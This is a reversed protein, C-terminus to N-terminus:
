SPQHALIERVLRLLKDVDFPRLLVHIGQDLLMAPEIHRMSSSGLIIPIKSTERKLRVLQLFNLVDREGGPPCDIMLLDPMVSVVDDPSRTARCEVDYGEGQLVETLAAIIDPDDNLCLIKKKDGREKTTM